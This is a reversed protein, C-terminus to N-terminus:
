KDIDEQIMKKLGIIMDNCMHNIKERDDSEEIIIREDGKLWILQYIVRGDKAIRQTIEFYM